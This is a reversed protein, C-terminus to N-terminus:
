SHIWCRRCAPTTAGRPQWTSRCGARRMEPLLRRPTSTWHRQLPLCTATPRQGTRRQRWCQQRSAAAAAAPQSALAAATAATARHEGAPWGALDCACRWKTAAWVTCGPREGPVVAQQVCRLRAPVWGTARSPDRHLQELAAPSTPSYYRDGAPAPPEYAAGAGRARQLGFICMVAQRDGM